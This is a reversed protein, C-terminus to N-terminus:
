LDGAMEAVWDAYEETELVESGFEEVIRAVVTDFDESDFLEWWGEVKLEEAVEAFIEEFRELM